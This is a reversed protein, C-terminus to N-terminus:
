DDSFQPRKSKKKPQEVEEEDDDEVVPKKVAKSVKEVVEPLKKSVKKKPEEVVEEEVEEVEDEDTEIEEEDEVEEDDADDISAMSKIYGKEVILMFKKKAKRLTKSFVALVDQEDESDPFPIEIDALGAYEILDFLQAIARSKDPNGVITLNGEGDDVFREQREGKYESAFPLYCPFLIGAANGDVVRLNVVVQWYKGFDGTREIVQYNDKEDKTVGDCVVNFTGKAPRVSNIASGDARINWFYQGGNRLEFTEPLDEPLDSLKFSFNESEDNGKADKYHVDVSFSTKGLKFVGVGTVPKQYKPRSFKV